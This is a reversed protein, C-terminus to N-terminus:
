YMKSIFRFQLPHQTIQLVVTYKTYLCGEEHARTRLWSFTITRRLCFFLHTSGIYKRQELNERSHHLHFLFFFSWKPWLIGLSVAQLERKKKKKEKRWTWRLTMWSRLLFNYVRKKVSTENRELLHKLGSCAHGQKAINTQIGNSIFMRDLYNLTRNNDAAGRHFASVKFSWLSLHTDECKM